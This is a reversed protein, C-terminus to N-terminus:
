YTFIPIAFRKVTQGTRTVTNGEFTIFGASSLSIVSGDSSLAAFQTIEGTGTYIGTPSGNFISSLTNTINYGSLASDGKLIDYISSEAATVRGYTDVTLKGWEESSTASIDSLSVVGSDPKSLTSYDVDVLVASITKTLTDYVLGDGFVNPIASITLTNSSFAFYEPDVDLTLVDGDVTIGNQITNADLYTASISGTNLSLVNTSTYNFFKSDIKASVDAWSDVNSYNTATLQYFKNNVNVLDGIEAIVTSLSYYNVLPTHNKSGIVNGGSLTGNGVYLRKTDTTYVPEGQDFVVLQRQDNTGRRFKIKSITVNPM